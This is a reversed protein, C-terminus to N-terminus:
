EPSEKAEVQSEIASITIIFGKRTERHRERKIRHRFETVFCTHDVSCSYLLTLAVFMLDHGMTDTKNSATM